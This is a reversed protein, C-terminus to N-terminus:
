SFYGKHKAVKQREEKRKEFLAIANVDGSKAMEFIKLDIVYKSMDVGNQYLKYFESDKNKLEQLIETETVGLISSMIKTDYGLAGFNVVMDANEIKM